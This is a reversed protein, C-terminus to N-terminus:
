GGFVLRLVAYQFPAFIVRLIRTSILLILILFGFPAIMAYLRAAPDGVVSVVVGSGDLPPIPILNFVGLMMNVMVFQFLIYTV